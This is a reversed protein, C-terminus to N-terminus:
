RGGRGGGGRWKDSIVKDREGEKNRKPKTGTTLLPNLPSKDLLASSNRGRQRMRRRKNKERM